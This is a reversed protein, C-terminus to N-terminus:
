GLGDPVRQRRQVVGHEHGADVRLEHRLDDGDREGGREDAVALHHDGDPRVTFTVGNSAVGGVTVTVNGTTAGSPVPVTISTASWSTPTATVGNFSVTSTGQTTGFNTGTITVLASVAGSTPSLSTIAATPVVTFAKGTSAVGGVTVTM